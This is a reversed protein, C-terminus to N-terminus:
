MFFCFKFKQPEKTKFFLFVFLFKLSFVDKGGSTHSLIICRQGGSTDLKETVPMRPGGSYQPSWAASRGGGGNTGFQQVAPGSSRIGRPMAGPVQEPWGVGPVGGPQNQVAAMGMWSGAFAESGPSSHGAPARIGAGIDGGAPMQMGPVMGAADPELRLRNLLAGVDGFATADGPMGTMPPMAVGQLQDMQRKIADIMPNLRELAQRRQLASLTKSQQIGSRENLLPQLVAQLELMKQLAVPSLQPGATPPQSYAAPWGAGGSQQKRHAPPPITSNFVPQFASARGSQMGSDPFVFGTGVGAENTSQGRLMRGRQPQSFQM